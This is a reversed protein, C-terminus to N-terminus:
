HVIVDGGAETDGGTLATSLILGLLPQKEIAWRLAFALQGLHGEHAYCTEGSEARAVILYDECGHAALLAELDDQFKM